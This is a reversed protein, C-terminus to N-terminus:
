SFSMSKKVIFCHFYFLECLEGHSKAFKMFTEEMTKDIASLSGPLLSRAVGIAGNDLYSMAGPHTPELNTM